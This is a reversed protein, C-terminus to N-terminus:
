VRRRRAWMGLGGLAALSALVLSSPEPVASTNYAVNDFEFAYSSSTAVVRDFSDTSTINVYYTGLEGQDGNASATVNTGTVTGVLTSGNYFSLTNYSDVSGWLLGLYKEQGPLALTVSGVGTTLYQTTDPGNNPDGFLTGNGNSLYPAAYVDSQSGQVTQGDGTFSVTIGNSVGGAAGPPLGDFNVYNVGTPAGGVSADVVIGAQAVPNMGALCYSLVGLTVCTRLIGHAM